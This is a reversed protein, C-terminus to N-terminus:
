RGRRGANARRSEFAYYLTPVFILTILASVSIGGIVAIAMTKWFGSGEGQGFIIPLLGLITTLTTMLIPRLRNSGAEEIAAKLELGRGRLINIYDVLVIATKVAVGTVLILGVFPMVGFPSGTLFLAWVLGVVGFPISFMVIFPHLLSEFQAVMVLYILCISLLLAIFLSSFSKQMDEANGAVKATVGEPLTTAAIAKRVDNLVDGLSRGYYDSSVSVMRQQNKREILQPGSQLQIDALSDLVVNSGLRTTVFSSRLDELSGRDEERLRVFVDYEEGGSRYKTAVNGYFLGRATAAVDYLSLGLRSAKERDVILQYEPNTKERSLVPDVVGPIASIKDLLVAAAQDLRDFDSGYLEVTVPKDAGGLSNAGSRSFNISKLGPTGLAIDAVIRQIEKEGRKRQDPPVVKVYVKGYNPGDKGGMSFSSGGGGASVMIYILEPIQKRVEAEIRRMVQATEEWKSGAPLEVTASFNGDDEEPFFESGIFMFLPLTLFFILTGSILVLRRRELAWGLLRAYGAEIQQFIGESWDYFREWWSTGAKKASRHVELLQACLMPTLSLATILSMGIVVITILSLQQFLIGVFGAVLLLPLFIVLNTITSAIVASSVEGTGYISAERPPEGKKERHRYVNELVVVADDVVIGISIILSALSIINISGGSLFMYLFAAILSVPMALGVIIAGRVNRLFFLVCLFIFFFSWYLTKSLEDIIQMISESTDQVYTLRLDAPLGALISSFEKKVAEAVQVTNAGSQKQIMLMIGPRGDIETMNSQEKFGDNVTAIDSLFINRGQYSGVVLNRIDEMGAFEGPVRIAYELQEGKFSGAPLSLNGGQIAMNVQNLSLRYAELRQRDIDVNIQRQLGGSIIVTGVGAIRKLAPSIKKDALEYLQRYSQDASLGVVLIPIQSLDFKFITSPQVDRPLKGRIQDMKDRVNASAIDLSEGWKFAITVVSLNEQSKSSIRDINPVTAVGDEIIKSVTTEIDEASAGPYPTIITLTPIAINPLFDLPLKTLGFLGVLTLIIFISITFLPRTVFHKIM